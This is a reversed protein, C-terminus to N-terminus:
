SVEPSVECFGKRSQFYGACLMEPYIPEPAYLQQCNQPSIIRVDVEQLWSPKPLTVSQEIDGWGAVWCLTGTPIHTGPSVLPVPQISHSFPIPRALKLLAVDGGQLADGNYSPHWIAHAVPVLASGPPRSYLLAEGLQVSLDRTRKPSTVCHAATLVWQASILSGGCVHHGHERLSVQWPWQHPSAVTGGVIRTEPALGSARERLFTLMLLAPLLWM